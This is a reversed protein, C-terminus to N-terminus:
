GEAAGHASPKRVPLAIDGPAYMAQIHARNLCAFDRAVPQGVGLPFIHVDSIALFDDNTRELTETLDLDPRRYFNARLAFATTFFMMPQPARPPMEEPQFDPPPPPEALVAVLLAGRWDVLLQPVKKTHQPHSLPAITADHLTIYRYMGSNLANSVRRYLPLDYTGSILLGTTYVEIQFTFMKECLQLRFM